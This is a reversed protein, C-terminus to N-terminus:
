DFTELGGRGDNNRSLLFSLFFLSDVVGDCLKVVEDSFLDRLVGLALRGLWTVLPRHM